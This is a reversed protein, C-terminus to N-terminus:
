TSAARRVRPLDGSDALLGRLTTDALFEAIEDVGYDGDPRGALRRGGIPRHWNQV